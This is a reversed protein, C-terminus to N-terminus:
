RTMAGWVIGAILEAVDGFHDRGAAILDNGGAVGGTQLVSAFTGGVQRADGITVAGACGGDFTDNGGVLTGLVLYSDGIVWPIGTTAGITFLDNAALLHSNQDAYVNSDGIFRSALFDGNIVFHDEGSYPNGAQLANGFDGFVWQIHGDGTVNIFDAGGASDAVSFAGDAVLYNDVGAVTNITDTGSLLLDPLNTTPSTYIASVDVGAVGTIEYDIDVDNGLNIQVSTIAGTPEDAAGPFVFNGSVAVRHGQPTLYVFSTANASVFTDFALDDFGIGNMFVTQDANVGSLTAM